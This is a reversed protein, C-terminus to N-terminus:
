SAREERVQPHCQRAEEYISCTRVLYWMSHRFPVPPVLISLIVRPLTSRVGEESFGSPQAASQTYDM